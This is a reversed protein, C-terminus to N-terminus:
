EEEHRSKPFLFDSAQYKERKTARWEGTMGIKNLM